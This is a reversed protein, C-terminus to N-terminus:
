SLLIIVIDWEGNVFLTGVAQASHSPLTISRHAEEGRLSDEIDVDSFM